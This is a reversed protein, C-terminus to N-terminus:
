RAPNATEERSSFFLIEKEFLSECNQDFCSVLYKMVEDIHSPSFPIKARKLADRFQEYTVISVTRHVEENSHFVDLLTRGNEDCHVQISNLLNNAYYDSTNRVVGLFCKLTSQHSFFKEIRSM